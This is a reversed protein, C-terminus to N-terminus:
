SREFEEDSIQILEFERRISDDFDGYAGGGERRLLRLSLKAVRDSSPVRYIAPAWGAIFWTAGRKAVWFSNGYLGRREHDEPFRHSACVMRDTVDDLPMFTTHFGANQVAHQLEAYDETVLPQGRQIVFRTEEGDPRGGERWVNGTTRFSKV